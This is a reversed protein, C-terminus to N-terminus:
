KLSSINTTFKAIKNVDNKTLLKKLNKSKYEKIRMTGRLM